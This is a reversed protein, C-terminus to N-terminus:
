LATFRGPDLFVLHDGDWGLNLHLRHDHDTLNVEYLRDVVRQLEPPSLPRSAFPEVKKQVVFYVSSLDVTHAINLRDVLITPLPTLSPKFHLSLLATESPLREMALTYGRLTRVLKGLKKKQYSPLILWPRPMDKFVKLVLTGDESFFVFSQGGQDKLFFKQNLYPAPDIHNSLNLDCTTHLRAITFGWTAKECLHYALFLLSVFILKYM